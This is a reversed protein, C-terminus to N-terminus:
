LYIKLLHGKQLTNIELKSAIAPLLLTEGKKFPYGNVEFNGETNMLIIFSDLDSIDQSLNQNLQLKDIKFYPTEIYSELKQDIKAEFDLAQLAEETHLPRPKGDLGPRNWDFIRYTIDSTQQVEALLIGKGIAHLTGAPIYFTDGAKVQIKNIIPLLDGKKLQKLYDSETIGPKFGIYLVAGEDAQIIHWLENKGFSDHRKQALDDNPHVQISLDDAADIYKILLPFDTGFKQHIKKGLIENPYKKILYTLKQGEFYSEKVSSVNNKVASVEWSEGTKDSPIHKNLITKLKHGGWPKEKFIPEFKIPKQLFYRDLERQLHSLSNKFIIKFWETYHQPNKQIDEAMKDLNEWKYAMVEDPNIKPEHNSFGIMVHDLEHETLGNDFPAKYIFHFVEKLKATMGMEEKLRRKGAEINSENKRQHSCVTNTWLGPSHYKHAARQQLLLEGKDNFIFVSFARHLLAKQHAAMKPAYGLVEDKKNVLIVQEEQMSFFYPV